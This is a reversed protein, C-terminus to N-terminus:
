RYNKACLTRLFRDRLLPGSKKAASRAIASKRQEAKPEALARSNERARM